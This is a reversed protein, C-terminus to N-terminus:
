WKETRNQKKLYEQILEEYMTNTYKECLEFNYVLDKTEEDTLNFHNKLETYKENYSKGFIPMNRLVTGNIILFFIYLLFSIIFIGTHELM